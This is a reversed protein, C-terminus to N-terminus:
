HHPEDSVLALLAKAVFMFLGYICLWAFMGLPLGLLGVLPIAILIFFVIALAEM